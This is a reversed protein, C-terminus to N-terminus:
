ESLIEALEEAAGAFAGGRSAGAAQWRRELVEIVVEAAVARAKWLEGEYESPEGPNDDNNSAQGVQGTM